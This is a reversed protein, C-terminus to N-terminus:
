SMAKRRLNPPLMQSTDSLVLTVSVAEKFGSLKFVAGALEPLM